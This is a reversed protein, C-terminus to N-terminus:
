VWLRMPCSKGHFDVAKELRERMTVPVSSKTHQIRNIGLAKLQAAMAADKARQNAKGTGSSKASM